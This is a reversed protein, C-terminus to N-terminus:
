GLVLSVRHTAGDDILAIASPDAAAGDLQASVVGRCLHKPNSVSIEYRTRGFLWSIEYGSWSSPICPDMKSRFLM